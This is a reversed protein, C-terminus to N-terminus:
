NPAPPFVEHNSRWPPLLAEGLDLEPSKEGAATQPQGISWSIYSGALELARDTYLTDQPDWTNWEPSDGM